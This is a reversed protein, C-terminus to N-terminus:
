KPTLPTDDPGIDRITKVQSAVFDELWSRVSEVADEVTAATAISVELGSGGVTGTLRARLAKTAHGPEIWVRLFLLGTRDSSSHTM